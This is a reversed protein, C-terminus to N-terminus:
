ARWTRPATGRPSPVLPVPGGVGGPRTGGVGGPRTRRRPARAALVAWSALVVATAAALALGDTLGGPWYHLVVTATGAPVVVRMLDGPARRIVLAAGDATAHWGPVDTVRMTLTAPRAVRVEVVYRADGPHSVALVQAGARRGGSAQSVRGAGGFTFRGSGPVEYLTEGAVTAVPRMGAPAPRGPGALVYSVGYLRALAVSDVSPAFLNLGVPSVQAADPVPWADFYAQPITPDHVALEDIGYPLNMEPYLGIGTWYRVGCYAGSAAGGDCTTNAGDLGLLSSGVASRVASVAPTVPYADHAYSNIGVGAFLLFGSQIGLMVLGGATSATRARTAPWHRCAGALALLVVLVVLSASPWLLSSRRLSELVAVAPTTATVVPARADGVRSWLAALVVALVAVGGGLARRVRRERWRELVVELGLGALVAVVLELVSQMRQLAVASLGADALLHQVPAGAGLDYVVLLGVLAAVGLGVVVPRRWCVLVAVGACALAVVGVYAATEYYNVPGFWYSGATPLGDYGQAFLLVAAHLPLGTAAFKGNRASHRLVSVGPLLLPAAFAGGAVVGAGVRVVGIPHLGALGRAAVVRAVATVVLVTGLGIALLVYSEPFGAYLSFAVAAALLVVERVHARSRYCLVVGALIWGGLAVPGSVSWGLWGSFAGSLMFTTGGFAAALPRAGLVRCCLYAGSGALLLKVAVTVLFSAGLPALYGVLTPLALPASEFNLLQPIGTGSLANWLPLEHHHVLQWDLTNWPVGQTITDGNIGNHLPVAPVLRTLLSLGRGLDAPGFGVGDKVAPSLYAAAFLAIWLLGLADDRWRARSLWQRAAHWTGPRARM